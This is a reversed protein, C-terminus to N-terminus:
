RGLEKLKKLVDETEKSKGANPAPSPRYAPKPQTQSPIIRRPMTRPPIQSSPPFGRPPMGMRPQSKNGGKKKAFILKIKKRFLIGILVLLILASLIVIGLYNTAGGSNNPICCTNGGSCTYSSETEDGSCSPKCTGSNSSCTPTSPNQCTGTCCAGDSSQSTSVSCVQSSPCVAGGLNTCSQLPVQKNCCINSGICGTYVSSNLQTGGATNCNAQSLCYYGSQICDQTATSTPTTNAIVSSQPWISYLLFATNRINNQWCGDAGQSSTLWNIATSKQTLDQQQFPYLALATDYYKDGSVLWWGSQQQESLLADQYSGGLLVSLFSEPLYQENISQKAILYPLYSTYNYGLNQLALAAWLTGEYDCSGGQKLCYSSAIEYTTGDAAASNLEDLVYTTSTASDQYLLNTKFDADCSISFRRDYCSSKISLWYNGSYFSFCSGLNPSSLQKNANILITVASTGSTITCQSPENTDIQLLWNLGQPTIKQGSLWSAPQSLDTTGKLALMAQATTKVTCGSKPWCGLTSYDSLLETKCQGTALMSFIKEETSLTSCQGQIKSNLCSYGNSSVNGGTDSLAFSINLIILAILFVTLAGRKM